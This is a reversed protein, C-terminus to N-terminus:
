GKMVVTTINGAPSKLINKSSCLGSRDKRAGVKGVGNRGVREKVERGL